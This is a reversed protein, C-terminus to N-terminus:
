RPAPCLRCWGRGSLSCLGFCVGPRHWPPGSRRTRLHTGCGAHNIVDSPLFHGAALGLRTAGFNRSRGFSFGVVATRCGCGRRGCVVGCSGGYGVLSALGLGGFGVHSVFELPSRAWGARQGVHDRTGALIWRAADKQYPRGVLPCRGLLQAARSIRRTGRFTVARRPSAGGFFQGRFNERHHDM